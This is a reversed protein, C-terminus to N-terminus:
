VRCIAMPQTIGVQMAETDTSFVIADAADAAYTKAVVRVLYAEGVNVEAVVSAEEVLIVKTVQSLRHDPRFASQSPVVRTQLRDADTPLTRRRWFVTPPRPGEHPKLVLICRAIDQVAVGVQQLTDACAVEVIGPILQGLQLM